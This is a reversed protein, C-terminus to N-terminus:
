NPLETFGNIPAKSLIRNLELRKLLRRDKIRYIPCHADELSKELVDVTIALKKAVDQVLLLQKEVISVRLEPVKFNYWGRYPSITESIAKVYSKVM